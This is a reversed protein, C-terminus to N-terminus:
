RALTVSRVAQQREGSARVLYVGAAARGGATAGTWTFEHFGAELTGDALVAVERGRLDYVAVRVREPAPLSMQVHAGAATPNPSVPALFFARAGTTTVSVPAFSVEGGDVMAVTLRYWLTRGPPAARDTLVLEGGASEVAGSVAQWPGDATESREVTTRLIGRADGWTWALRVGDAQATAEFRRLTNAVPDAKFTAHIARDATVDSFAYEAVPGVSVGDVQVDDISYGPAPTITFPHYGCGDPVEIVGAPSISGGPGASATIARRQEALPTTCQAPMIWIGNDEDAWYVVGNAVIVDRRTELVNFGPYAVGSQNADGIPVPNGPDTIDLVWLGGSGQTVYLVGDVAELNMSGRREPVAVPTLEVPTSPNSIDFVRIGTYREAVYLHDGYLEVAQLSSNSYIAAHFTNRRWLDVRANNAVVGCLLGCSEDFDAARGGSTPDTRAFTGPSQPDFRYFYGNGQNGTTLVTIVPSDSEHFALMQENERSGPAQALLVPASPDVLDWVRVTDRDATIAYRDILEADGHAIISSLEVPALPDSIDWIRGSGSLLIDGQIHIVTTPDDLRGLPAPAADPGIDVVQLGAYNGIGFAYNGSVALDWNDGVGNAESRAIVSAQLPDSIDVVVIGDVTNTYLRDGRVVMDCGTREFGEALGFRELLVPTAPASVDYVALGWVEADVSGPHSTMYLLSGDPSLAMYAGWNVGLPAGLVPLAPDTVDIIRGGFHHTVYVMNGNVLMDRTSGAGASFTSLAVVNGPDTVDFIRLAGAFSPSGSNYLFLLTQAGRVQLDIAIPDTASLGAGQLYVAVQTFVLDANGPDLPDADQVELIQYGADSTCLYLFPRNPFDPDLCMETPAGITQFWGIEDDDGAPAELALPDTIDIATLHGQHSNNTIYENIYCFAVERGPLFPHPAVVVGSDTGPGPTGLPLQLPPMVTGSVWRIYQDYEICPSAQALTRTAAGTLFILAATALIMAAATRENASKFM